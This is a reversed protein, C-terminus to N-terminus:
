ETIKHYLVPESKPAVTKNNNIMHLYDVYLIGLEKARARHTKESKSGMEYVSVSRLTDRSSISVEEPKSFPRQIEPTHNCSSSLLLASLLLNRKM